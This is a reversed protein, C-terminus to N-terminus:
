GGKNSHESRGKSIWALWAARSGRAEMPVELYVFQVIARIARTNADDARGIADMLDNAIVAELFGGTPRGTDVYAILSELTIEPIALAYRERDIIM